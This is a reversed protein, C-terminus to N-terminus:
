NKYISGRFNIDFIYITKNEFDLQYLIRIKGVRLRYVDKIEGSLKTVNVNEKPPNKQLNELKEIIQKAKNQVIKNLFKLSRKHYVIKFELSNKSKKM